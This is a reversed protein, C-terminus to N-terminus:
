QEGSPAAAKALVDKAEVLTMDAAPIMVDSPVLEDDPVVKGQDRVHQILSQLTTRFRADDDAHVAAELEADLRAIEAEHEPDVRYQNDAMIRVIM